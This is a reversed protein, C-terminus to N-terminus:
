KYEIMAARRLEALYRKAQVGFKQQFLEDRVEKKVPTDSKTEKKSCLAFVQV